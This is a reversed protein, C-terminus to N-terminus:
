KGDVGAASHSQLHQRADEVAKFDSLNKDLRCLQRTDVFDKAAEM